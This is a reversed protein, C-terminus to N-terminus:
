EAKELGIRGVRGGYYRMFASNAFTVRGNPTSRFVMETQDEVVAKYRRESQILDNKSAELGDVMRNISAALSGLDDKYGVEIKVGGGGNDDIRRVGNNLKNIRSTVFYHLLIVHGYHAHGVVSVILDPAHNRKSPRITYHEIGVVEIVIAPKNSIDDVVYLGTIENDGMIKVMSGHEILQSGYDSENGFGGVHDGFNIINIQLSQSKLEESLQEELSQDIVKALIFVGVPNGTDNGVISHHIPRASVMYPVSDVMIIGTCGNKMGQVLIDSQSRNLYAFFGTPLARIGGNYYLRTIVNYTSNTIIVANIGLNKFTSEPFVTNM